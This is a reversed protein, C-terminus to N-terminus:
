PNTIKTGAFNNPPQGRGSYEKPPLLGEGPRWVSVKKSVGVVYSLGRGTPGSRFDVADGYGADALVVGRSADAEEALQEDMLDLAIEWKRKFAIEKPVGVKARREADNAWAEPLYLHHGVPLSGSENAFSLSVAVQCNHNKGLVGCYQNDVGM